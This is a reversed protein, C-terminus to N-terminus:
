IGGERSPASARGRCRTTQPCILILFGKSIEIRKRIADIYLIGNILKMDMMM